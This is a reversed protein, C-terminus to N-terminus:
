RLRVLRGSPTDVMVATGISPPRSERAGADASCTVARGRRREALRAAAPLDDNPRSRVRVGLRRDTTDAYGAYGSGIALPVNLM